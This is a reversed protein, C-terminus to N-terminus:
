VVVVEHARRLAHIRLDRQIQVDRVVEAAFAEALAQHDPEIGHVQRVLFRGEDVDRLARIAAASEIRRQVIRDAPDDTQCQPFLPSPKSPPSSPVRWTQRQGRRVKLPYDHTKSFEGRNRDGIGYVMRRERFIEFFHDDGRLAALHIQLVNGCRAVTSVASVSADLPTSLTRSIWVTAGLTAILM